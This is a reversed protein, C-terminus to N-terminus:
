LFNLGSNHLSKISFSVMYMSGLALITRAPWNEEADIKENENRLHVFFQLAFLETDEIVEVYPSVTFWLLNDHKLRFFLVSFVSFFECFFTM